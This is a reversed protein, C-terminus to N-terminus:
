FIPYTSYSYITFSIFLSLFIGLLIRELMTNLRTGRARMHHCALSYASKSVGQDLDLSQTRNVHAFSLININSPGKLYGPVMKVCGTLPNSIKMNQQECHIGNDVYKPIHTQDSIHVALRLKQLQKMRSLLCPKQGM